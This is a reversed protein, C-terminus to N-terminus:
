RREGEKWQLLARMGASLIPDDGRAMEEFEYDVAVDPLVGHNELNRGELTSWGIRPIRVRSGDVLTLEGASIVAGLTPRGVLLGRRTARISEALLEAASGTGEDILVVLPGDARVAPSLTWEEGRARQEVLPRRLLLDMVAEHGFGGPNDRLDLLLGKEGGSRSFLERTFREISGSDLRALRLYSLDGHTRREVTARRAATEAEERLAALTAHDLLQVEASRERRGSKFSVTVRRGAKGDLLAESSIAAGLAVGDISLLRDGASLGLQDLPGGADVRTLRLGPGGEEASLEAGLWGGATRTTTPVVEDLHSANLEGTMMRILDSLEERTACGPLRARYRERMADWNVLHLGRDYFGDRIARWVEDLMQADRASRDDAVAALLPIERTAGAELAFLRGLRDLAHLREGQAAVARPDFGDYTLRRPAEGRAGAFLEPRGDLPAAYLLEEGRIWYDGSPARLGPTPLARWVVGNLDYELDPPDKAASSDALALRPVLPLRWIATEGGRDSLFYLDRGDSGFRPEVDQAPHLTVNIPQDSFLSLLFVDFQGSADAKAFALWRSDPSFSFSSFRSGRALLRDRGGDADALRLEEGDFSRLYAVYRDDPSLLPAREEERASRFPRPNGESPRADLDLRFLDFNGAVDSAYFLTKGDRSLTPEVDRAGGRTLARPAGGGGAVLPSRRHRSRPSRGSRGARDRRPSAHRRRDDALARAADGELPTARATPLELRWIRGGREYVVRKGDASLSPFRAGDETHSTLRTREGSELDLRFLNLTFTEESAYLLSKGDPFWEPWLDQGAFTTLRSTGGRELDSVWLDSDGAGRYGKRWWPVHSRVFALRKGDPSAVADTSLDQTVEEVEGGAIPVRYISPEDRGRRAHFLVWKGDATVGSPWDDSDLWTLRSTAGSGLDLRFLDYSSARRAAFILGTGSREFLPRREDAPDETVRVAEGGEWPVIWLDGRWAFAVRSGDPSIAPQRLDISWPDPEAARCWMSTLLLCISACLAPTLTRSM